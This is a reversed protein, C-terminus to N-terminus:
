THKERQVQEAQTEVSPAWDAERQGKRAKQQKSKGCLLTGPPLFIANQTFQRTRFGFFYLMSTM